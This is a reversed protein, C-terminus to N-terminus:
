ESDFGSSSSSQDGIIEDAKHVKQYMEIYKSKFRPLKKGQSKPGGRGVIKSLPELTQDEAAM